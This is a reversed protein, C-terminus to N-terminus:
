TQNVTRHRRLGSSVHDDSFRESVERAGEVRTGIAAFEAMTKIILDDNHRTTKRSNSTDKARCMFLVESVM